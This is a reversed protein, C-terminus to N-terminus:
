RSERIKNKVSETTKKANGIYAVDEIITIPRKILTYEQLLHAAIEQEAMGALDLGLEKIKRSRKNVLELYSGTQNHLFSLTEKDIPNAKLDYRDFDEPIEVAKKIKRCTDCTSLFIFKNKM